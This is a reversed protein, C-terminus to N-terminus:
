RLPIYSLHELGFYKKLIERIEDRDTLNKRLKVRADRYEKFVGDVLTYNSKGSFISLKMYKNFGSDPHKECYFAPMVYDDDVQPEETFGYSPAWDKGQEKQLLVWGYFDDKEFRYECVGDTQVEGCVLRLAKRPAENRVGVDVLFREKGLTVVLVRHRRMQLIGPRNMFRAAYQAVSFGTTNLLEKFIGQLEFCFGGRRDVIIKQFLDEPKLSLPIGALIDLNEYPIHTLHAWQLASLTAETRELAGQYHIRELYRELENQTLM